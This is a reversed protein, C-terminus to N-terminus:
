PWSQQSDTRSLAGLNASPIATAGGVFSVSFRACFFLFRLTGLGIDLWCNAQLCSLSPQCLGAEGLGPPRDSRADTTSCDAVGLCASLSLTRKSGVTTIPWFLATSLPPPTPRAVLAPAISPELDAVGADSSSIGGGPSGSVGSSISVGPNTRWTPVCNSM